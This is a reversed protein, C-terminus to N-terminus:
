KGDTLDVEEASYDSLTVETITIALAVGEDDDPLNVLLSNGQRGNKAPLANVELLGGSLWDKLNQEIIACVFRESFTPCGPEGSYEPDGHQSEAGTEPTETDSM